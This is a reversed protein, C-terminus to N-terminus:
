STHFCPLDTCTWIALHIHQHIRLEWQYISALQQSINNEGRTEIRQSPKCSQANKKKQHLHTSKKRNTHAVLPFGLSHVYNFSPFYYAKEDMSAIQFPGTGGAQGHPVTRGDAWPGARYPLFCVTFGPAAHTAHEVQRAHMLRCTDESNQFCRRRGLALAPSATHQEAKRKGVRRRLRPRRSYRLQEHGGPVRM